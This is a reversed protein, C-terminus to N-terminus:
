DDHTDLMDTELSAFKDNIVLIGTGTGLKACGIGLESRLKTGFNKPEGTAEVVGNVIEFRKDYLPGYLKQYKAELAAREEFFKAELEDHQSQLERLVDVRKRIKPPLTELVDSQQGALNQL